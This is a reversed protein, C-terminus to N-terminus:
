DFQHDIGGIRGYLIRRILICHFRSQGHFPQVGQPALHIEFPQRSQRKFRREGSFIKRRVTALVAYELRLWGKTGILVAHRTRNAYGLCVPLIELLYGRGDSM